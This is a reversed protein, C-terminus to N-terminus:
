SLVYTEDTKGGVRCSQQLQNGSFRSIHAVELSLDHRYDM